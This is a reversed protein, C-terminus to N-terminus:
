PTSDPQHDQALARFARTSRAAPNDGGEDASEDPEPANASAQRAVAELFERLGKAHEPDEIELDKVIIQDGSKRARAGVEGWVHNHSVADLLGAVATFEACWHADSDGVLGVTFTRKDTVEATSRDIERIGM